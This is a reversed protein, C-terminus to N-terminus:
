ENLFELAWAVIECIAMTGAYVVLGASLVAVAALLPTILDNM